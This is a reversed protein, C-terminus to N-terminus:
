DDSQAGPDFGEPKEARSSETKAKLSETGSFFTDTAVATAMRLAPPRLETLTATSAINGRATYASLAQFAFLAGGMALATVIATGAQLRTVLRAHCWVLVGVVIGILAYDYRQIGPLNFAFAATDLAYDLVMVAVVALAALSLHALFHGARGNLRSLLAWVGSWLALVAAMVFASNIYTSSREGDIDALWTTLAGCGLALPVAWAFVWHGLTPLVAVNAARPAHVYGRTRVRFRQGGLLFNQDPDVRWSRTMGGTAWFDPADDNAAVRLSGDASRTILVAVPRLDKTPEADVIHDSDYAAGVSVPFRDFRHRAVLGDHKDLLELFVVDDALPLPLPAVQDM